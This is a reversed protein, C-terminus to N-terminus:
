TTSSRNTWLCCCNHRRKWPEYVGKGFSKGNSSSPVSSKGASQTVNTQVASQSTSDQALLQQMECQPISMEIEGHRANGCCACTSVVPVIKWQRPSIARTWPRECTSIWVQVCCQGPKHLAYVCTNNWLENRARKGSSCDHTDWSRRREVLDHESAEDAETM